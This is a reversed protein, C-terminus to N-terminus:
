GTLPSCGEDLIEFDQEYFYNRGEHEWELAAKWQGTRMHKLPIGVTEGSLTYLVLIRNLKPAVKNLLKIIGKVPHCFNFQLSAM